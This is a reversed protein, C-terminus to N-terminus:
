RRFGPDKFIGASAEELWHRIELVQPIRGSSKTRGDVAVAPTFKIGRKEFEHYDSVHIVEATMGLQGLAERVKQETALCRMCGPGLIEIRM